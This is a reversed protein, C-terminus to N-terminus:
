PRRKTMGYRSLKDVLTRRPMGLLTAAKTQNGGTRELADFIRQRELSEVETRLDRAGPPPVSKGEDAGAALALELTAADLVGGTAFATAREVLSRLERINGPYSRRTLAALAEPAIPIPARGAQECAGHVFTRALGEIEGARERLPPIRITVGNLRYLLDRRFEGTAVRAELDQNTAAIFRVDIARARTSGVPLIERRELAVLLKPQLALPLEGIEDLFVTGGAASELLGSRAQSAGTFAGKEHGFLESELLSEPLAACNLRVFAAQRRSSLAHIREAVVDKGVGTEGLLLVTMTTPASLEVLRNVREMSDTAAATERGGTRGGQLVLLVHGIEISDGPRVPVRVGATMRVGNLRTGNSSGCDEVADPDGAHWVVHRRSVSPHDIRLQCAQSRGLDLEGREPLVFERYGGEWLAVLRRKPAAEQAGLLTSQTREGEPSSM